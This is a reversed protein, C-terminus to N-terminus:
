VFGVIPGQFLHPVRGGTGGHSRWQVYPVVVMGKHNSRTNKVKKAEDKLSKEVIDQKVKDITWPPYGCERPAKAVHEEEKKWDGEQAHIPICSGVLEAVCQILHNEPWTSWWATSLWSTILIDSPFRFTTMLYCMKLQTFYSTEVNNITGVSHIEEVSHQLETGRQTRPCIPGIGAVTRDIPM